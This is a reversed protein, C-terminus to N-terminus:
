RGTMSRRVAAWVNPDDLEEETLREIEDASYYDKVTNVQSQKMSGAIKHDKKPQQKSYIDYIDKIPTNSNFKNAFAKFDDSNYVDETVGISSLENGRETNQRYEALTKFMMKERATMKDLGKKMLRETEEVVEDYGGSIIDEADARALVEIDRTNEREPINVGKGRYYEEYTETLEEVNQKGTAAKLVNELRGYNDDYQKRIKAEKRAIKGPLVEKVKANVAENFEAETYTKPTQETTQEVNETVETVLNENMEM